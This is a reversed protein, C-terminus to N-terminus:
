GQVDADSLLMLLKDSMSDIKADDKQAISDQLISITQEIQERLVADIDNGRDMLFNTADNIYFEAEIQAPTRDEITELTEDGEAGVVTSLHEKAAAKQADSM